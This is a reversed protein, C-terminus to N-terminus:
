LHNTVNNLDGSFKKIKWCTIKCFIYNVYLTLEKEDSDKSKVVSM